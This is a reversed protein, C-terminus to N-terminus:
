NKGNEEERRFVMFLGTAVAILSVVVIVATMIVTRDIKEDQETEDGMIELRLNNILSDLENTTYESSYGKIDHLLVSVGETDGTLCRVSIKVYEANSIDSFEEADFYLTVTGGASIAGTANIRKGASGLTLMIEYVANPNGGMLEATLSLTPTYAYSEPYEFYGIAEMSEGKAMASSSVRLVRNGNVDYDSLTSVCNQGKHMADFFATSFVTYCFEGTTKEPKETYFQMDIVSRPTSASIEAGIVDKWSEKGLNKAYPEITEDRHQTDIDCFVKKIHSYKDETNGSFVTVFSSIEKYASLKLYSYIYACCLENGKLTRNPQWKYIIHAPASKYITKLSQIYSVYDGVNDPTILKANQEGGNASAEGAVIGPTSQSEIMVSCSFGSPLNTDLTSSIGELIAASIMQESDAVCAASDSFPIVVDISSNVVRAVNGIMMLYLSYTDVYQEYTHKDQTNLYETDIKTSVIFGHIRGSDTDYRQALFETVASVFKVVDASYVDPINTGSVSPLKESQELLLRVYVRGGSLSAANIRKDLEDVYSKKIHLYEGRVSMMYGDTVDGVARNLYFDVIVTGAGSNSIRSPKDTLLGKFTLRDGANYKYTSAVSPSQPEGAIYDEGDPSTLVIAYRSFRSSVDTVNVEFTFKAAMTSRALEREDPLGLLKDRSQGPLLSFLRIVYDGHKIMVEHNVMGDVIIKDTVDDYVCTFSVTDLLKQADDASEALVCPSLVAWIILVTMIFSIIKKM